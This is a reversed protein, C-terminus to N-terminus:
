VTRRCCCGDRSRTTTFECSTSACRAWAAATTAGARDRLLVEFDPIYVRQTLQRRGAAPAPEAATAIRDQVIDAFVSGHVSGGTQALVTKPAGIAFVAVFAAAAFNNFWGRM